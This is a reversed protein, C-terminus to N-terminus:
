PRAPLHKRLPQALRSLLSGGLAGGLTALLTAIVLQPFDPAAVASARFTIIGIIVAITLTGMLGESVGKERWSDIVVAAALVLLWVIAFIAPPLAEAYVRVAVRDRVGASLETLQLTVDHGDANDITNLAQITQRMVPVVSSRRGSGFRQTTWEQNFVGELLRETAGDHSAAIAYKATRNEQGQSPLFHGEVIVTYRGTRGQFPVTVPSGGRQLETSFLPTGPNVARYFPFFTAAIWAVAFAALTARGALSLPLGLFGRLGMFLVLAMGLAGIATVAQPPDVVELNYLVFVVFAAVGAATPLVWSRLADLVAMRTLPVTHAAQARRRPAPRSKSTQSKM